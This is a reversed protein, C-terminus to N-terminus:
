LLVEENHSPAPTTGPVSAVDARKAAYRRVVNEFERLRDHHLCMTPLAPVGEGACRMDLRDLDVLTFDSFDVDGFGHCHVEVPRMEREDLAFTAPAHTTPM